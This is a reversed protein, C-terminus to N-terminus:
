IVINVLRDPVVIVKKIEAGDIARQVKESALALAELVSKDAGKAATLTDRLKGRVQIAITVEDEILLSEDVDPWAANAILDSEGLLAWAEEALHPVM